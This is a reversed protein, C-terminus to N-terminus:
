SNGGEGLLPALQDALHDALLQHGIDSFHWADTFVTASEGDFARSCDVFYVGPETALAALGQRLSEYSWRLDEESGLAALAGREVQDELTSRTKKEFLSPQLAFVV